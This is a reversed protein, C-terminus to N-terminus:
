FVGYVRHPPHTRLPGPPELSGGSGGIQKEGTPVYIITSGCGPDGRGDDVVCRLDDEISAKMKVHYTLNPRDFSTLTIAPQRLFLQRCIDEQVQPTATATLAMRPVDPLVRMLVAGLQRYAPRFDHGWESVCHAEDVAVVCIGCSKQLAMLGSHWSGLKEPTLYVLRFDGNAAKQEVTPDTQGSGLFCATVGQAQLKQVQDEMLAILPSVVVSCKATALAPLQYCVSKGSGTAMVVLTDKLRLCAQVVDQQCPRFDRYGFTRKLINRLRADDVTASQQQAQPGAAQAASADAACNGRYIDISHRLAANPVLAMSHMQGMLPSENPRERLWKEIAARDYSIGDGVAMVPDLMLGRGLPCIFAAPLENAANTLKRTLKVAM